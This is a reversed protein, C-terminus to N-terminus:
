QSGWKDQFILETLSERKRWNSSELLPKEPYQDTYGISMLAIPDIYPPIELIDRIDNKKYFSVWGMALGESCAALWMNQIACATSLVDTEPISNRGLVHSGGRTPDCTVCITIPAEKLGEVKLSLFKNEKEGEYHIALARREKDAAWALKEKVKPSSVVIFNWPQMFGVSPAHHAANLLKQVIEESIPDPLFSRVDRRTFITKYVADREEDTFM